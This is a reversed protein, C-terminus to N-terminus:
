EMQWETENAEKIDNSTQNTYLELVLVLFPPTLQASPPSYKALGTSGVKTSSGIKSAAAVCTIWM